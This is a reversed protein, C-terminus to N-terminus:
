TKRRCFTDTQSHCNPCLFRLNEVKNNQWDGNVHDIELVLKKGNWQSGIKCEKCIYEIGIDLMARMLYKTKERLGDNRCCLVEDSTRAKPGKYRSGSNARKGLFHTTDLRHKKIVNSIHYQTGGAQRLGLKRLVEALSISEAVIPELLEKTYKM